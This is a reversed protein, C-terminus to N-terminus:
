RLYSLPWGLAAAATSALVPWAGGLGSGSRSGAHASGATSALAPCTQSPGPVSQARRVGRSTTPDGVGRGGTSCTRGGFCRGRRPATHSSYAMKNNNNNILLNAFNEPSLYVKPRSTEWVRRRRGWVGLMVGAGCGMRGLTSIGGWCVRALSTHRDAPGLASAHPRLHGAWAAM